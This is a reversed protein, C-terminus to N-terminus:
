TIPDGDWSNVYCHTSKQELDYKNWSTMSMEPLRCLCINELDTLPNKVNPITSMEQM